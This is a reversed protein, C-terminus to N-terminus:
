RSHFEKPRIERMSIPKGNAIIVHDLVPIEVIKGSEVLTKTVAWDEPSPTSTGSPHNHVIIVSVAGESIALRFVERPHAATQNALGISVRHRATPLNGGNLMIVWLQEQEQYDTLADIMYAAIHAPKCIPTDPCEGVPIYRTQLQFVQM